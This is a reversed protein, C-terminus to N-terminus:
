KNFTWFFSFPNIANNANLIDYHYYKLKNVYFYKIEFGIKKLEEILELEENDSYFYIDIDNLKMKKKTSLQVNIIEFIRLVKENLKM